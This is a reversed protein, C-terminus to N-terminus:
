ITIILATIKKSERVTIPRLITITKMHIMIILTLIIITKTHIIISKIMHLRITLAAMILPKIIITMKNPITTLIM